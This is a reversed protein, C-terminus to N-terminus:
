ASSFSEFLVFVFFIDGELFDYLKEFFLRGEGLRLVNQFEGFFV